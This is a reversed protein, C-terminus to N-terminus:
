GLVSRLQREAAAHDVHVGFAVWPAGRHPDEAAALEALYECSLRRMTRSEWSTPQQFTRAAWRDIESWSLPAQGMGTNEAPGAEMLWDYV